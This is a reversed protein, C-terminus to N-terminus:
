SNKRASLILSITLSAQDFAEQELRMAAELVRRDNAPLNFAVGRDTAIEVYALPYTTGDDYQGSSTDHVTTLALMLGIDYDKRIRQVVIRIVVHDSVKRTSTLITEHTIDM